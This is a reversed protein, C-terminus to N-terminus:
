MEKGQPSPHMIGRRRARDVPLVAQLREPARFSVPWDSNDRRKLGLQAPGEAHKPAIYCMRQRGLQGGRKAPKRRECAVAYDTHKRVAPPRFALLINSKPIGAQVWVPAIGHETNDTQIWLKEGAIDLHM